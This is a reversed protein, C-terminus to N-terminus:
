KKLVKEIKQRYLEKNNILKFKNISKQKMENLKNKDSLIEIIKESLEDNNDSLFGNEDNKIIDLLGDVPTSVVPIGLSQAELVSMPTGEYISCMIMLKCSSLIKFPNQMYGLLEINDELKKEQIKKRVNEEQDGTGVIAVKTDPRKDCVLKLIDILREPNKPYALRGLFIIDYNYDNKDEKAKNIVQQEDIVNYLVSSKNKIFKAFKYGNYSSTAVWFIHKFTLSCILYLITKINIKNMSAHNGHIHSIIKSKKYVRSSIVSARVDHAYIIDPKIENVVKKLDKYTLKDIGIYKINEEQLKKEISGKPCCYYMDYENDFMKIIQCAVNEAGSFRNSSLIHLVKKKKNM